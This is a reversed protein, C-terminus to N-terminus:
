ESAPEYTAEFIAPKCPYHHIGDPETIIWDGDVVVNWGTLSETAFAMNAPVPPEDNAHCLVVAPDERMVWVPEVGEPLPRSVVRFQTAEVVVPKKRYKPM